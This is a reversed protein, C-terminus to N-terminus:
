QTKTSNLGFRTKTNSHGVLNVSELHGFFQCISFIVQYFDKKMHRTHRVQRNLLIYIVPNYLAASKAFFAPITMFVPGFETGQNAFIYWAVTAYPVWCVLFSIVMVVVMRTVEREARQTTESEQQQAAAQFFM